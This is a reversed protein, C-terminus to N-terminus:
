GKASAKPAASPVQAGVFGPELVRGDADPRVETTACLGRENMADVIPQLAAISNLTAQGLGDHMTVISGDRLPGVVNAAIEEASVGETDHSDVLNDTADRGFSMVLRLGLERAVDDVQQNVAGYPPRYLEPQPAGEAVLLESARRLEERIQEDGWPSVQEGSPLEGTTLDAHSQAHNGVVHGEAVARRVLEGRGEVNHGSWFFVAPLGLDRLRDLLAGTHQRPGDDFTLVVYGGSCDSTLPRLEEAAAAAPEASAAASTRVDAVVQHGAFTLGFVVALATLLPRRRM